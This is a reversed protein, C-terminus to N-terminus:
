GERGRKEEIIMELAVTIREEIKKRFPYWVVPIKTMVVVGKPVLVVEAKFRKGLISVKNRRENWTYTVVQDFPRVVELLHSLYQEICLVLEEHAKESERFVVLKAM